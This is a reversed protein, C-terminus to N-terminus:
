TLAEAVTSFPPPGGGALPAPLTSYPTQGPPSLLYPDPARDQATVQPVTSYNPGPTGDANVIGESLLNLM